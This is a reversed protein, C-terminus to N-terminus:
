PAPTPSINQRSFRARMRPAIWWAIPAALVFSAAIAASIWFGSDEALAPWALVLVLGAGFMVGQTMLYILLAIRARTATGQKM